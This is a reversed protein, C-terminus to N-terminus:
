EVNSCASGMLGDVIIFSLEWQAPLKLHAEEFPSGVYDQKAITCNLLLAANVALVPTCYNCHLSRDHCVKIRPTVQGPQPGFHAMGSVCKEGVAVGNAGHAGGGEERLGVQFLEQM